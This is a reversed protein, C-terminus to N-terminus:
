VPIDPIKRDKKLRAIAHMLLQARGVAFSPILVTGGRAATEVIAKALIAVSDEEVHQRDGYTSEVVLTDAAEITRPPRMLLDNSRGLDGSFVLTRKGKRITVIAAGLLHGAPTLEARLGGSLDFPKDFSVPE